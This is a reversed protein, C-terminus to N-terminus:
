LLKWLKLYSDKDTGWWFWGGSAEHLPRWLVPVGADQLRKLQVAIIDIDDLLFQYGDPDDGDMIKKFIGKKTESTYFDGHSEKENTYPKPLRWHWAFTVIANNEWAEIAAETEATFIGKNVASASYNIFDLGIVAPRKGTQEYIFQSEGGFLGHDSRWNGQSQQGALSKLGYQMVLFSMLGLANDDANPNVLTAPIEYFDEDLGSEGSVTLSKVAIWGWHATIGVRNEGADFHVRKVFSPAYEESDSVLAGAPEGNITLYNEKYGGFSKTDFTLLYFGEETIDIIFELLDAKDKQEFRGVAGDDMLSLSGNIVALDAPYTIPDPLSTDATSFGLDRVPRKLRERPPVAPTQVATGTDDSESESESIIIDAVETVDASPTDNKKMECGYLMFSAMGLLIISLIRKKM